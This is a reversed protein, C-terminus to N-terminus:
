SKIIKLMQILYKGNMVETEDLDLLRKDFKVFGNDMYFDLLKQKEECELYVIKGGLMQQFMAINDCAMKLLEDGSILKNYGNTFNKGLQAILPAPIVCGKMDPDYTGFKCIKKYCTASVKAKAVFISKITLTFYGILVPQDQYQAFVLHTKAISQKAFELARKHLFYEVDHNLPCSFDSLIAKTRDEGYQQYLESLSIQVYGDM